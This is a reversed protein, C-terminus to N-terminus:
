IRYENEPLEPSEQPTGIPRVDETTAGPAPPGAPGRSTAVAGQPLVVPSNPMSVDPAETAAQAPEPEPGPDAAEPM